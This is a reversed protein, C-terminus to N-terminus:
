IENNTIHCAIFIKIQNSKIRKGLKEMKRKIAEIVQELKNEGKVNKVLILPNKNKAHEINLKSNTKELINKLKNAEESKACSIVLKQNKTKKVRVVECWDEKKDILKNIEEFVKSNVILSHYTIRPPKQTRSKM